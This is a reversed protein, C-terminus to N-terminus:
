STECDNEKGKQINSQVYRINELFKQRKIRKIPSKRFLINFDELAISQFDSLNMNIIGDHPIFEDIATMTAFKKNWPCVDQCIDCGYIWNDFKESLSADVDGKHEITLYSICKRADLVYPAVLAHTPCADICRNCSGCYDKIPKSSDLEINLLIVGLFFWSGFERSNLITNKGVWGLGARRAWAKEMVAGSDVYAKGEATPDKEKIFRLLADLKTKIVAHYDEGLAYRSIKVANKDSPYQFDTYYNFSCVIISKIEPFVKKTDIRKESNILMWEMGGHYANSLWTKLLEAETTLQEALVFGVKSFGLETAKLKIEDTFSKM